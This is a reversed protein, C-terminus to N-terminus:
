LNDEDVWVKSEKSTKMIMNLKKEKCKCLVSISTISTTDHTNSKSHLQKLLFKKADIKKVQMLLLFSYLMFCFFKEFACCLRPQFFLLVLFNRHVQVYFGLVMTTTKEVSKHSSPYRWLTSHFM